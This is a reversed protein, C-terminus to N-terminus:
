VRRQRPQADGLARSRRQQAGCRQPRHYLVTRRAVANGTTDDYYVNGIQWAALSPSAAGLGLLASLALASVTIRFRRGLATPQCPRYGHKTTMKLAGRIPQASALRRTETTGLPNATSATRGHVASRLGTTPKACVSRTM